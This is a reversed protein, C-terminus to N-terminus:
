LKPVGIRRIFSLFASLWLRNNAVRIPFYILPMFIQKILKRDLKSEIIDMKVKDYIRHHLYELFDKHLCTYVDQIKGDPNTRMALEENLLLYSMIQYASASADQTIPMKNYESVVDDCLVKTMFQYPDSAEKAFTILSEDSANFM